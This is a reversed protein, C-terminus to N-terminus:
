NSEQKFKYLSYIAVLGLVVGAVIFVTNFNHTDAFYSDVQFFSIVSAFASLVMLTSWKGFFTKM